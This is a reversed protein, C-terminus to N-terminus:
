LVTVQMGPGLFEESLALSCAKAGQRNRGGARSLFLENLGPLIKRCDRLSGACTRRHFCHVEQAISFEFDALSRIWGGTWALDDQFDLSGAHASAVQFVIAGSTAGPLRNDFVPRAVVWAVFRGRRKDFGAPHQSAAASLPSIGM